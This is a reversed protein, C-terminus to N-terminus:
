AREKAFCAEDSASTRAAEEWPDALRNDREAACQSCVFLGDVIDVTEGLLVVGCDDCTLPDSYATQYIM